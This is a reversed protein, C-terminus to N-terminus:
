KDFYGGLALYLLYGGLGIYILISAVFTIRKLTSVPLLQLRHDVWQFQKEKKGSTYGTWLGLFLMILYSVILTKYHM